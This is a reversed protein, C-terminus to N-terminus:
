LDDQEMDCLPNTCEDDTKKNITDCLPCIWKTSAVKKTKKLTFTQEEELKSYYCTYVLDSFKQLMSPSHKIDAKYEPNGVKVEDDCENMLKFLKINKIFDANLILSSDIYKGVEVLEDDNLPNINFYSFYNYLITNNPINSQKKMSSAPFIICKLRISELGMEENSIKFNIIQYKTSADRLSKSEKQIDRDLTSKSIICPNLNYIYGDNDELGDRIIDPEHCELDGLILPDSKKNEELNLTCDVASEKIIHLFKNLIKAKKNAIKELEEDTSLSNDYQHLETTFKYMLNIFKEINEDEDEDTSKTKKGKESKLQNIDTMLQIIDDDIHKIKLGNLQIDSFRSIYKFVDVRRDEEPLLNHSRVRRARGIVQNTRVNNWYPEMIHVQRVSKLSIGEAGSATALLILCEAGLKNSARNFFNLIDVREQNDTQKGTWLVFRCPSINSYDSKSIKILETDTYESMEDYKFMDELEISKTIFIQAPKKHIIRHTTSILKGDANTHTWRVMTGPDLIKNNNFSGKTTKKSTIINCIEDKKIDVSTDETTDAPTDSSVDSRHKKSWKLESFGNHELVKTFIGIGEATLFQSYIFVPGPSHISINFINFYKPSLWKLNYPTNKYVSRLNLYIESDAIRTIQKELIENYEGDATTDDLIDEKDEEINISLYVDYIKTNVTEIISSTDESSKLEELKGDICDIIQQSLRVIFNKNINIIEEILSKKTISQIEFGDDTRVLQKLENLSVDSVDELLGINLEDESDEDDDTDDGGDGDNKSHPKKIMFHLYDSFLKSVEPLESDKILVNIYEQRLIYIMFSDKLLRMNNIKDWIKMHITDVTDPISEDEIIKNLILEIESLIYRRDYLNKKTPRLIAPPFTFISLQRTTTKFSASMSGGDKNSFRSIKAIKERKREEERAYCYQIFQYMSFEINNEQIRVEPFINTGDVDTKRENYFSTLGNINNKFTREYILNNESDVYSTYFNEIQQSIFGIDGMMKNKWSKTTDIIGQFLTFARYTDFEVIYNPFEDRALDMMFVIFDKDNMNMISNYEVGAYEGSTNFTKIFGNPLRTLELAGQNYTFRDIYKNNKFFDIITDPDVSILADKSSINFKLTKIFGNILNYLISFEFINNISPTGSLCVLNVNSARMLLEYIVGGNFNVSENPMILSVLNHVEDIVVVKNSFPNEIEETYILDLVKQIDTNTIQSTRKDGVYTNFNPILKQLLNIVTYAGANYSCLSYSYEFCKKIQDCISKREEESYKRTINYYQYNIKDTEPIHIEGDQSTDKQLHSIDVEEDGPIILDEVSLASKDAAKSANDAMDAALIMTAIPHKKYNKKTAADNLPCSRSTTGESGCLKCKGGGVMPDTIIRGYSSSGKIRTIKLKDGTYKNIVIDDKTFDTDILWIGPIDRNMSYELLELPVGIDILLSFLANVLSKIINNILLSLLIDKNSTLNKFNNITDYETQGFSPWIDSLGDINKIINTFVWNCLEFNRNIPLTYFVWAFTSKFSSEGFKQIEQLYNTKLSAPLLIVVKKNIYGNTISISAGSKGSGLGHYLLLGRYPTNRNLYDSVFKQQTSLIIKELKYRNGIKSYNIIERNTSEGSIMSMKKMFKSFSLRNKLIYGNPFEDPYSNLNLRKYNDLFIKNKITDLLETIKGNIKTMYTDMWQEYNDFNDLDPYDIKIEKFLKKTKEILGHSPFIDLLKNYNNLLELRLELILFNDSVSMRNLLSLRDLIVENRRIIKKKLRLLEYYSYDTLIPVSQKETRTPELIHEFYRLKVEGTDLEIKSDALSSSNFTTFAVPLQYYSVDKTKSIDKTLLSRYIKHKM